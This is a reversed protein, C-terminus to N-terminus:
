IDYSGCRRALRKFINTDMLKNISYIVMKEMQRILGDFTGYKQMENKDVVIYKLRCSIKNLIM